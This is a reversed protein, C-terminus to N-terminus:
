SMQFHLEFVILLEIRALSYTVSVFAAIVGAILVVAGGGRHFLVM